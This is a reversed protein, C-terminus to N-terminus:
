PNLKIWTGNGATNSCFWWHGASIDLVMQGLVYNTSGLGTGTATVALTAFPNTRGRFLDDCLRKKLKGYTAAM